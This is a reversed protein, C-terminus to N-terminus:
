DQMNKDFESFYGGGALHKFGKDTLERGRSSSTLFGLKWLYPEVMRSVQDPHMDLMNSLAEKGVPKDSNYLITLYKRQIEDLGLTDIGLDSFTENLDSLLIEKHGHYQAFDRARAAYKLALRPIGRAREAITSLVPLQSPIGEKTLYENVIFLLDYSSMAEMRWHHSFRNILSKGDLQQPDTTAGALCFPPLKTPEGLTLITSKDMPFYLEEQSDESMEHIEDIVLFAIKGANSAKQTNETLFQSVKSRTLRSGQTSFYCYDLEHCLSSLFYTKGLGGSGSVLCHGLPEGRRRAAVVAVEASRKLDWQGIIDDFM